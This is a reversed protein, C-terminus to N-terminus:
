DGLFEGIPTQNKLFEALLLGVAVGAATSVLVKSNIM